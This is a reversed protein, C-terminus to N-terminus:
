CFSGYFGAVITTLIAAVLARQFMEIEFFAPFTEGPIFPAISELSPALIEILHESLQMM